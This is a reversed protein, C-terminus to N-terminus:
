KVVVHGHQVSLLVYIIISVCLTGACVTYVMLGLRYNVSTSAPWSVHQGSSVIRDASVQELVSESASGGENAEEM